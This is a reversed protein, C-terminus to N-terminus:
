KKSALNRAMEDIQERFAVKMDRIDEMLERVREEKEGLLLLAKEYRVNQEITKTQMLALQTKMQQLDENVGSLRVLASELNTRQASEEALQSKLAEIEGDRQRVISQLKELAAVPTAASSKFSQMTQDVDPRRSIVPSDSARTAIAQVEQLKAEFQSQTSRLSEALSVRNAEATAAVRSAQEARAEAQAAATLADRAASQAQEMKAHAARASELAAHKEDEASKLRRKMQQLELNLQEEKQTITERSRSVVARLDEITQELTFFKEEAQKKERLLM